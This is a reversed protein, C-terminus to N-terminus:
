TVNATKQDSETVVNEYSPRVNPYALDSAAKGYGTGGGKVSYQKRKVM